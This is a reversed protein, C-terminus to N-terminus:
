ASGDSARGSNPMTMQRLVDVDLGDLLAYTAARKAAAAESAVDDMSKMPGHEDENHVWQVLDGCGDHGIHPEDAAHGRRRACTVAGHCACSAGCQQEGEAALLTSLYEAGDPSRRGDGLLPCEEPRSCDWPRCIWGGAADASPGCARQVSHETTTV